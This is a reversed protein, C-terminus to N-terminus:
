PQVLVIRMTSKDLGYKKGAPAPPITINASAAFEEFSAPKRRHGMVWRLLSRNLEGLDPEGTATVLPQTAVAQQPYVPPPPQDATAVTNSPVQPANAPPPSAKRCGIACLAVALMIGLGFLSKQFLTSAVGRRKPLRTFVHLLCGHKRRRPAAAVLKESTEFLVPRRRRVRNCVMAPQSAPNALARPIMRTTESLQPKNRIAYIMMERQLTRLLSSLRRRVNGEM